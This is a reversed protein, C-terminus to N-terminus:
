SANGKRSPPEEKEKKGRYAEKIANLIEAKRFFFIRRKKPHYPGHQVGGKGGRLFCDKKKTKPGPSVRKGRRTITDGGAENPL